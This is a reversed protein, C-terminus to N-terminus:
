EGSGASPESLKQNVSADGGDTLGPHLRNEFVTARDAQANVPARNHVPVFCSKKVGLRRRLVREMTACFARKEVPKLIFGAAEM